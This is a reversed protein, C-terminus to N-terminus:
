RPKAFSLNRAALAERIKRMANPGMGHLQELEDETYKAVDELTQIGVSALARRAPAALQPLDNGNSETM